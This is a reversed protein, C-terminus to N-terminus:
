KVKVSGRAYSCKYAPGTVKTGDSTTWTLSATFSGTKALGKVTATGKYQTTYKVNKRSGSKVVSKRGLVYTSGDKVTVTVDKLDNKGKVSVTANFTKTNSKSSKQKLSTSIESAKIYRAYVIMDKDVASFDAPKKFASDM